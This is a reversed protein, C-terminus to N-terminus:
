NFSYSNKWFYLDLTAELMSISKSFCITRRSLLKLHTRVSLNNREIHNIKYKGIKHITEPMLTKYNNLGDTYIKKAKSLLLTDVVKKLTKNTRKGIRFDVVEGTSRDIACAIWYKKKKNGIYTKMEDM